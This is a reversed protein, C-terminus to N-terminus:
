RVEVIRAGFKMRASVLEQSINVEQEANGMRISNRHTQRVPFRDELDDGTLCAM